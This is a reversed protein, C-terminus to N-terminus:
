SIQYWLTISILHYLLKNDYNRKFCLIHGLVPTLIVTLIHTISIQDKVHWYTLVYDLVSIKTLSFLSCSHLRLIFIFFKLDGWSFTSMHKRLCYLNEKISLPCIQIFLKLHVDEHQSVKGNDDLLRYATNKGHLVRQINLVISKLNIVLYLSSASNNIGDM